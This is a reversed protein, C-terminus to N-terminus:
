SGGSEPARVSTVEAGFMEIAQQVLQNQQVKRIMQGTSPGSKKPPEPSAAAPVDDLLRFELSVSDGVMETLMGELRAKAAPRRLFEVQTNYAASFSVVLRNPGSTAVSKYPRAYEGVLDSMDSLIRDWINKASSDTLAIGGKPKQAEPPSEPEEEGAPPLVEPASPRSPAIVTAQNISSEAPREAVVTAAQPIAQPAIQPAAVTGAVVQIAPRAPLPKGSRITEVLDAVSQLDELQCVRVLAMEALIRAHASRQMRVLADDLIQVAAMVNALGYNKAVAAINEADAPLVTQLLSADAGVVLTMMDRFFGLLQEILQGPDIGRTLAHDFQGLVAAADRAALGSMIVAIQESGAAGLMQNVDAVTIEKGGFALLQELLSQSDRMSGNAKRALLRLAEQEAKVGENEVIYALRGVIEDMRIGGFDFRQCRSLVTIPIKEPDTTCFIFKVHEPPEELTKLLANFAEKTFMHVEDIIYIKFRARSPRINVNSRLQRIEEIGRNSAGDIELVDVDEGVTVSRCIDCENCPTATPGKQCNLAKALIRASSTKGVGRAGTFLYAHGVRGREIANKLAQAVQHQGVLEEFSQPRYRRAVVVYQDHAGSPEANEIGEDTM